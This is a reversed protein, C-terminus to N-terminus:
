KCPTDWFANKGSLDGVKIGYYHQDLNIDRRDKQTAKNAPDYLVLGGGQSMVYMAIGGQVATDKDTESLGLLDNPGHTHAGAIIGPVM